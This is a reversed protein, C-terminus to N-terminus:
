VGWDRGAATGAGRCPPSYPNRLDRVWFGEGQRKALGSRQAVGEAVAFLPLHCRRLRQRILDRTRERRLTPPLELSEVAAPTEFASAPRFRVARRGLADTEAIVNDSVKWHGGAGPGLHGCLDRHLQLIVGPRLPIAEHAEHITALVDRYGAIEKEDRNRPATSGGVLARIRADTTSIGEIRNSAATSQIKAIELLTDLVDPTARLYLAQKGRCEHLSAILNSVEPTLWKRPAHIYDFTRM